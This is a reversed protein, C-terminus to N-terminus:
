LPVNEWDERGEERSTNVSGARVRTITRPEAQEAEDLALEVDDGEEELEVKHYLRKQEEEKGGAAQAALARAAEQRAEWRLRARAQLLHDGDKLRQLYFLQQWVSLVDAEYRRRVPVAAGEGGEAQQQQPEDDADDDDDNMFDEELQETWDGEQMMTARQHRRRRRADRRDTSAKLRRDEEEEEEVGMRGLRWRKEWEKYRLSLQLWVDVSQREEEATWVAEDITVELYLLHRASLLSSLATASLPQLSLHLSHLSPLAAVLSPFSASTVFPLNHLQLSALHQFASLFSVFAHPAVSQWSSVSPSLWSSAQPSLPRESSLALSRSLSLSLLRPALATLPQLSALTLSTLTLALHQLSLFTPLAALVAQEIDFYLPVDAVRTTSSTFTLSLLSSSFSSFFLSFTFSSSSPLSLLTQTQLHLAHLSSQIPVSARRSHSPSSSVSAAAPPPSTSGGNVAATGDAATSAVTDAQKLLQLQKQKQEEEGARKRREKEDRERRRSQWVEVEDVARGNRTLQLVRLAKCRMIALWCEQKNIMCVRTGEHGDGDSESSGSGYVGGVVRRSRVAAAEAEAEQGGDHMDYYEVALHALHQM